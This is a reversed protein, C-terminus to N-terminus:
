ALLVLTIAAIWVPTAYFSFVIWWWDNMLSRCIVTCVKRTGSASLDGEGFVSAVIRDMRQFVAELAEDRGAKGLRALDVSLSCWKFYALFVLVVFLLTGWENFLALMHNKDQVVVDLQKAIVWALLSTVLFLVVKAGNAFFSVIHSAFISSKSFPPLPPHALVIALGTASTLVNSMMLSMFLTRSLIVPALIGLAFFAVLAM